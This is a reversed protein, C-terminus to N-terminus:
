TTPLTKLIKVVHMKLEDTTKSNKVTFSELDRNQIKLMFHISIENEKYKQVALSYCDSQMWVNRLYSNDFNQSVLVEQLFEFIENSSCDLLDKM